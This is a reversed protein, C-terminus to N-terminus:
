HRHEPDSRARAERRCTLAEKRALNEEILARADREADEDSVFSLAETVTLELLSRDFTRTEYVPAYLYAVTDLFVFLHELCMEAQSLTISHDGHAANNGLRRIVDLRRHIERGIISRFREGNILSILKDDVPLELECDASYMWKIAFEMARRCNLVCSDADIHLIQEAAIAVKAFPVFEPTALLFDFNTM